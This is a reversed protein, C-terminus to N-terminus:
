KTFLQIGLWGLIAVLVLSSYGVSAVFASQHFVSLTRRRRLSWALAATVFPAVLVLYFFGLSAMGSWEWFLATLLIMLWGGFTAFLIFYSLFPPSQVQARWMWRCLLVFVIVGLLPVVFNVGIGTIIKSLSM